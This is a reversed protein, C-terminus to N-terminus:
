LGDERKEDNNENNANPQEKEKKGFILDWNEDFKKKDEVSRQVYVLDSWKTATM